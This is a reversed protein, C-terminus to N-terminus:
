PPPTRAGGLRAISPAARRAAVRAVLLASLRAVLHARPRQPLRQAVGQVLLEAAVHQTVRALKADRRVVLRLPTVPPWSPRQRGHPASRAPGRRSAGAPRAAAARPEAAPRGPRAPAPASAARACRGM